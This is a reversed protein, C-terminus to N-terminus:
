TSERLDTIDVHGCERGRKKILEYLDRTVKLVGQHDPPEWGKPKVIDMKSGRKGPNEPSAMEKSMNARQIEDWHRDLNLGMRHALGCAVWILDAVEGGTQALDGARLAEIVETLEEQLFKIRYELEEPALCRPGEDYKLGFKNHFDIVDHFYSM